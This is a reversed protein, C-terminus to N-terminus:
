LVENAKEILEVALKCLANEATKAEQLHAARGKEDYAIKYAARWSADGNQWLTLIATVDKKDSTDTFIVAPLKKLLYGADYAPTVKLHYYNDPDYDDSNYFCLDRCGGWEGDVVEWHEINVPEGDLYAYETIWSPSLKYLKDSLELSAFNM